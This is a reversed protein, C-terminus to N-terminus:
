AAMRQKHVVLANKVENSKDHMMGKLCKEVKNFAQVEIQRIRERSVNYQESLDQLSRPEDKLRREIFIHRERDSLIKLSEILFKRRGSLEEKKSITVEHSETEDILADQWQDADENEGMPANLSMLPVMLSNMMVVSEATVGMLHAVKEVQEATMTREELIGIEAKVRRLGFFLKKADVTQPMKVQSMNDKIYNQIEAKIWFSAYTSFRYGLDPDFKKLAKTLGVSGESIIDKVPMGYFRYKMAIKVVLKLHSNVLAAAAKEDRHDRYAVALRTEEEHSLYPYKKIWAIYKSDGVDFMQSSL